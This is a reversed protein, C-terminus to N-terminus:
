LTVARVKEILEDVPRDSRDVRVNIHFSSKGSVVKTEVIIIAASNHGRRDGGALIGAELAKLLRLPFNEGENELYALYTQKLVNKSTLLNGLVCFTDGLIHGYHLPCNTGTHVAFVGKNNMICVQRIEPKPDLSLLEDLAERPTKGRELLRLGEKGYMINTYAQTAIAGVGPKAWPVRTGVAISGSTVAVGMLGVSEDIAVISFTGVM